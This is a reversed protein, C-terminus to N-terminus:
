VPDRQNPATDALGALLRRAATLADPMSGYVEDHGGSDSHGSVGWEGQPTADIVVIHTGDGIEASLAGSSFTRTSVSISNGSTSRVAAIFEVSSVV